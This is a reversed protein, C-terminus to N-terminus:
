QLPPARLQVIRQQSSIPNTIAPVLFYHKHFANILFGLITLFVAWTLFLSLQSIIAIGQPTHSHAPQSTTTIGGYFHSHVIVLDGVFHSHPFITINVYYFTFLVLLISALYKRNREVM